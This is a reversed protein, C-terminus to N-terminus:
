NETSFNVWLISTLHNDQTHNDALTSSILVAFTSLHTIVLVIVVNTLNSFASYLSIFIEETM